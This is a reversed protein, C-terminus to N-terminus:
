HEDTCGRSLLYAESGLGGKPARWARPTPGPNAVLGLEPLPVDNGHTEMGEHRLPPNWRTKLGIGGVRTRHIFETGIGEIDPQAKRDRAM